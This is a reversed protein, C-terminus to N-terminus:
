SYVSWRRQLNVDRAPQEVGELGLRAGLARVEQALLEGGVVDARERRLRLAHMEHRGFVDLLPAAHVGRAARPASPLIDLVRRRRIAFRRLLVSRPVVALQDLLM